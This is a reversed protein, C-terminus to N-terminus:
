LHKMVRYESAANWGARFAQAILSEVVPSVHAEAINLAPAGPVPAAWTSGIGILWEFVSSLSADQYLEDNFVMPLAAIAEFDSNASTRGSMEVHLKDLYAWKSSGPEAFVSYIIGDADEPVSFPRKDKGVSHARTAIQCIISQIPHVDESEAALLSLLFLYSAHLKASLQDVHLLCEGLPDFRFGWIVNGRRPSLEFIRSEQTRVFYLDPLIVRGYRNQKLEVKM